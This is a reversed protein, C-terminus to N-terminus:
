TVIVSLGGTTLKVGEGVVAFVPWLMMSDIETESGSPDILEVLTSQPSVM